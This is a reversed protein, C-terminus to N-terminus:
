RRVAGEARKLLENLKRSRPVVADISSINRTDDLPNAHLIMLDARRGKAVIGYDGLANEFRAANYTAAQLAEAATLGSEVLLALEDHLSFGPLNMPRAPSLDTGALFLAGGARCM